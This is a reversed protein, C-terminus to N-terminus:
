SPALQMDSLLVHQYIWGNSNHTGQFAVPFGAEAGISLQIESAEQLMPLANYLIVAPTRNPADPSFLIIKNVASVRAGPLTGSGGFNRSEIRPNGSDLGTTINPFIASLSDPDFERLVCVLAAADSRRVFDVRSQAYEEADISEYSPNAAFVGDKFEGMDTGGHPFEASLNTPTHCLRGSMHFYNIPSGVPV